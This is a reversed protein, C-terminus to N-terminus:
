KKTRKITIDALVPLHDSALTSLVNAQKVNIQPSTLIYDIRNIPNDAPFTYGPEPNTTSWADKFRSFLPSLEPANPSANMDGALLKANKSRSIIQQMDAVQMQRVTPDPRFDLHTVYFSLKAGKVNLLVELFGPALAPLPNPDQTSLRTISHNKAKIIPFKSLVGVGYQRRPENELLPDFDYIPAFYYFMNLEEALENIMDDYNSRSDWHVDVEQLAIIDARSARIEDAIRSLNYHGDMGIGAHINYTMVKAKVEKNGSAAADQLNVFPSLFLLVLPLVILKIKKM